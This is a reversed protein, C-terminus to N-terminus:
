FSGIDVIGKLGPIDFMPGAPPPSVPGSPPNMVAWKIFTSLTFNCLSQM